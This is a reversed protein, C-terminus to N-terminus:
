GQASIGSWTALQHYVSRRLRDKFPLSLMAHFIRRSNLPLVVLPGFDAESYGYAAWTSMRHEWYFLDLLDYGASNEESLETYNMYEAMTEILQPDRQFASQTYKGALVEPTIQDFERERYFVTGIEGGIGLILAENAGLEEYYTRALTPFRAWTPFTKSYMTSFAQSKRQKSVDLVRHNLNSSNALRNAGLLDRRSHDANRAFFHYTLASVDANHLLDLTATLIARSDAGATLGFLTKPRHALAADMQFRLESLYRETAEVVSLREPPTSFFRRHFVESGEVTLACNAIVLRVTDHPAIMGPLCKGAPNHYDPHTLVWRCGTAALDGVAQAALASHSAFVIRGNQKAWYCSRSAMADVHVRISSSRRGIAVFRGGLWTVAEDFSDWGDSRSLEKLLESAVAKSTHLRKASDAAQGILLIENEGDAHVQHYVELDPDFQYTWAGFSLSKWNGPFSPESDQAPANTFIWGQAFTNRYQRVGAASPSAEPRNAVAQWSETLSPSSSTLADSPLYRHKRSRLSNAVRNRNWRRFQKRGGKRLHWFAKRLENIKRHM